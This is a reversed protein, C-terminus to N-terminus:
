RSRQWPQLLRFHDHEQELLMDMAHTQGHTWGCAHLQKAGRLALHHPVSHCIEKWVRQAVVGLDPYWQYIRKGSLM